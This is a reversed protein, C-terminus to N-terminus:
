IVEKKEGKMEGGLGLLNPSNLKDPIKLAEGFLFRFQAGQASPQCRIFASTMRGLFRDEVKQEEVQM